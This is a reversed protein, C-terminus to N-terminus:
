TGDTATRILRSILGRCIAAHIRCMQEYVRFTGFCSVNANVARLKGDFFIVRYCQDIRSQGISRNLEM